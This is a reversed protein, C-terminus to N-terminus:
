LVLFTVTYYVSNELGSIYLVNIEGNIDAWQPVCAGTANTTTILGTPNDRPFIQAIFVAKAKGSIASSFKLPIFNHTPHAYDSETRFTVTRFSARVNDVLTIDKNLASYMSEIFENLPSLLNVIWSPAEAGLDELRISKITPLNAM